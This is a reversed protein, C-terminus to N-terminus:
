SVSASNTSENKGLSKLMRGHLLKLRGSLGQESVGPVLVFVCFRLSLAGLCLLGLKTLLCILGENERGAM